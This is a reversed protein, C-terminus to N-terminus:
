RLDAGIIQRRIQMEKDAASRGHDADHMSLLVRGAGELCVGGWYGSDGGFMHSNMSNRSYAAGEMWELRVGIFTIGVSFM